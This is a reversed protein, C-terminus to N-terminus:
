GGGAQGPRAAHERLVRLIEGRPIKGVANRPLAEVIVLPRPLFVPDITPRLAELLTAPDIGPAVVLAAVRRVGIADPDDPQLVCADHVGPLAAIRRTLDALSARKGAVDVLDTNRGIVIFRGDARLELVDQLPVRGDLWPASVFTCDTGPEFSVGPYARWADELATRRTAFVCSETSGFMELLRTGFRSEVERALADSLPATASVMVEVPPLSVGSQLLSRLHVPTTVLVRPAPVETLAAAIDAPFLPHGAHIAFGALLPLLGALEMGYMHQTPVTAIIWPKGGGAPLLARIAAANLATTAKLSSWRKRHATPTGTSGSTHGILAVFDDQRFAPVSGADPGARSLFGDELLDCAGYATATRSAAAASSPLLTTRRGSLSAVLGALFARRDTCLNVVYPHRLTVRSADFRFAGATQSSGARCSFPDSDAFGIPLTATGPTSARGTDRTGGRAPPPPGHHSGSTM